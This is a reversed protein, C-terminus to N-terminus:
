LKDKIAALGRKLLNPECEKCIYAKCFECYTVEKITKDNDILECVRCVQKM